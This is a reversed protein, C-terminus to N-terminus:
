YHKHNTSYGIHPFRDILQNRNQSLLPNTCTKDGYWTQTCTTYVEVHTQPSCLWTYYIATSQNAILLTQWWPVSTPTANYLFHPSLWGIRVQHDLGCNVHVNSSYETQPPVLAILLVVNVPLYIVPAYFSQPKKIVTACHVGRNWEHHHQCLWM